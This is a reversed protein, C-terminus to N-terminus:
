LLLYFLRVDSSIWLFLGYWFSFPNEDTKTPLMQWFVCFTCTSLERVFHKATMTFFFDYSFKRAGTEHIWSLVLLMISRILSSIINTLLNPKCSDFSYKNGSCNCLRREDSCNLHPRIAKQNDWRFVFVIWTFHTFSREATIAGKKICYDNEM